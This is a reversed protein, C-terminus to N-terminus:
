RTSHAMPEDTDVADSCTMGAEPEPESYPLRKDASSRMACTCSLTAPTPASASTGEPRDPTVARLSSPEQSM